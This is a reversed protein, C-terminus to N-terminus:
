AMCERLARMGRQIWSKVTGLPTQLREAIEGHSCGEVYAFLICDRRAPELGSSLCGQSSASILACSSRIPRRAAYAAM